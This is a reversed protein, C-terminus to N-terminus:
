DAPQRRCDDDNVQLPLGTVELHTIAMSLAMLSRGEVKVM